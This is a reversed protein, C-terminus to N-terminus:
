EAIVKLEILDISGTDGHTPLVDEVIVTWEGDTAQGATYERSIDRTSPLARTDINDSTTLALDQTSITYTNDMERASRGERDRLIIVHGQPSKLKISIDGLYSYSMKIKVQIDKVIRGAGIRVPLSKEVVPNQRDNITNEGTATVTADNVIQGPLAPGPNVDIREIAFDREPASNVKDLIRQLRVTGIDSISMASTFVVAGSDKLSASMVVHDRDITRGWRDIREAKIVPVAITPDVELFTLREEKDHSLVLARNSSQTEVVIDVLGRRNNRPYYTAYVGTEDALRSVSYSDSLDGWLFIREGNRKAREYTARISNGYRADRFNRGRYRHRGRFERDEESFRADNFNLANPFAGVFIHTAAVGLNRDYTEVVSGDRLEEILRSSSNSLTQMRREIATVASEKTAIRGTSASERAQAEGKNAEAQAKQNQQATIEGSIRTINANAQNLNRTATSLNSRLTGLQANARDLSAKATNAQSVLGEYHSKQSNFNPTLSTIRSNLTAIEGPLTSVRTNANNLAEQTAVKEAEKEAVAKEALVVAVMKAELRQVHDADIDLTRRLVRRAAAYASSQSREYVEVRTRSSNRYRFFSPTSNQNLRRRIMEGRNRPPAATATASSVGQAMTKMEAMMQRSSNELMTWGRQNELSGREIRRRTANIQATFSSEARTVTSNLGPLARNIANLESTKQRATAQAQRLQENKRDRQSVVREYQTKTAQFTGSLYNNQAALKQNYSRQLPAIEGQKAAINSNISAIQTQLNSKNTEQSQKQSILEPISRNLATIVRQAAAKDSQAVRKNEREARLTRQAGELDQEAIDLDIWNDELSIKNSIYECFQAQLERTQDRNGRRRGSRFEDCNLRDEQGRRELAESTDTIIQGNRGGQRGRRRMEDQAMASTAFQAVLAMALVRNVKM